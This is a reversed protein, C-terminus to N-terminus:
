VIAFDFGSKPNEVAWKAMQRNCAPDIHLEAPMEEFVEDDFDQPDNDIDTDTDESRLRDRIAPFLVTELWGNMLKINMKGSSSSVVNINGYKAELARVEEEM